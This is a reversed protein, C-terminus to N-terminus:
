WLRSSQFQGFAGWMRPPGKEPFLAFRGTRRSSDSAMPQTRRGRTADRDVPLPPARDGGPKQPYISM